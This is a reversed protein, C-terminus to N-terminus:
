RLHSRYRCWTERWLVLAMLGATFASALLVALPQGTLVLAAGALPGAVEGLAQHRGPGAGTEPRAISPHAAVLGLLVGYLLLLAALQWGVGRWLGIGAIMPLLLLAGAARLVPQSRQDVRLRVVRTSVLRASWIAAIAVAFLMPPWGYTALWEPLLWTWGLYSFSFLFPLWAFRDSAARGPATQEAGHVLGPPALRSTKAQWALWFCLLAVLWTGPGLALPGALLMGALLAAAGLWGQWTRAALAAHLFPWAMGFVFWLLLGVPGEEPALGLLLLALGALVGTEHLPRRISTRTQLWGGLRSAAVALGVVALTPGHQNHLTVALPVFVERWGYVFLPLAGPLRASPRSGAQRAQSVPAM